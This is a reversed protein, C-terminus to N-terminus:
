CFTSKITFFILLHYNHSYHNNLILFSMLHFFPQILNEKPDSDKFTLLEVCFFTLNSFIEKLREKVNEEKEKKKTIIMYYKM